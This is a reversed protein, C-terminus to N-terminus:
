CNPIPSHMCISKRYYAGATYGYSYSPILGLNEVADTLPSKVVEGNFRGQNIGLGYYGLFWDTTNLASTLIKSM